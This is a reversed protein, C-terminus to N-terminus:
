FFLELITWFDNKKPEKKWTKPTSKEGGEVSVDVFSARRLFTFFAGFFRKKKEVFVDKKEENRAEKQVREVASNSLGRIACFHM